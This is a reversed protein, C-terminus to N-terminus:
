PCPRFLTLVAPVIAPRVARISCVSRSFFVMIWLFFRMATAKDGSAILVTANYSFAIRWPIYVLWPTSHICFCAFGNAKGIVSPPIQPSAAEGLGLDM